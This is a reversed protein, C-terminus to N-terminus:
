KRKRRAALGALALLSLTATAPEPVATAKGVLYIGKDAGSSVRVVAVQNDGVQPEPMFGSYGVYYGVYTLETNGLTVKEGASAGMFTVGQSGFYISGSTNPASALTIAVPTDTAKLLESEWHTAAASDGMISTAKSDFVFKDTASFTNDGVFNLKTTTIVDNTFEKFAVTEDVNIVVTGYYYRNFNDGNNYDSTSVEDAFATGCLALAMMAFLTKKM